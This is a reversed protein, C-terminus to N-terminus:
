REGDSEHEAAALRAPSEGEAIPPDLIDGADGDDHRNEGAREDGAVLRNLAKEVRLLDRVEPRDHGGRDNAEDAVLTDCDEANPDATLDAAGREDGIPPM